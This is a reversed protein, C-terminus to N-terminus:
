LRLGPRENRVQDQQAASQAPLQDRCTSSVAEVSVDKDGGSIHANGMCYRTEQLGGPTDSVAGGRVVHNAPSVQAMASAAVLCSAAAAFCRLGLPGLSMIKNSM